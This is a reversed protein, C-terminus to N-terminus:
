REQENKSEEYMKDRKELYKESDIVIIPIHYKKAYKLDSEPIDKKYEHLTVLIFDPKIRGDKRTTNRKDHNRTRRYFAVENGFYTLPETVKRIGNDTGQM